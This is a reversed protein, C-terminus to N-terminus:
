GHIFCYCVVIMFAIPPVHSLDLYVRCPKGKWAKQAGLLSQVLDLYYPNPRLLDVPERRLGSKWAMKM